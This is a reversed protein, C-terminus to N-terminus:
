NGGKNRLAKLEELTMSELSVVPQTLQRQKTEIDRIKQSIFADLEAMKEDISSDPNGMTAKLSEGEQFTFAAGFTEKLLPLVQNNVIAIFKARATGGKTSGFGSQKIAADFIKGGFTSTAIQALEKLETVAIKLGPLAAESRQLSTLVDGQEIARKEALKVASTISPKHILQQKLKGGERAASKEEEIQVIKAALANNEAIREAATKSVKAILGLEMHASRGKITEAKPDNEAIAILSEMEVQRSSKKGKLQSPLNIFKNVNELLKAPGENQLVSMAQDTHFSNRNGGLVGSDLTQKRNQLLAMAAQGTPDTELQYKIMVSDQILADLGKEDTQMEKM